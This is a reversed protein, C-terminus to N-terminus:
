PTRSVCPQLKGSGCGGTRPGTVSGTRTTRRLLTVKGDKNAVVSGTGHAIDYRSLRVHSGEGPKRAAWDHSM